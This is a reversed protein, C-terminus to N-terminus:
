GPGFGFIERLPSNNAGEPGVEDPWVAVFTAGAFGSPFKLAGSIQNM